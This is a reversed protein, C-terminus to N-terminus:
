LPNAQTGDCAVYPPETHSAIDDVKEMYFNTGDVSLILPEVVSGLGQGCAPEAAQDACLRGVWRYRVVLNGGTLPNSAGPIPFEGFDADFSGNPLLDFPGRQFPPVNVETVRDAVGIAQMEFSIQVQAGAQSSTVTAAFPVPAAPSQPPAITFYYLGDPEGFGAGPGECTVGCKGISADTSSCDIGPPCANGSGSGRCGFQCIGDPGCVKGSEETGCDTDTACSCYNSPPNDLRNARVECWSSSFEEYVAEPDPCGSVLLLLGGSLALFGVRTRALKGTM